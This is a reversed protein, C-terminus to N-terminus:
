RPWDPCNPRLQECSLALALVDLDRHRQGVLQIGVPRGDPTTGWPVSVAPHGSMSFPVTFGIHALAREPGIPGAADASYTAMPAVPTLLLDFDGVARAAAVSMGDMASLGVFVDEATYGHAPAAWERIYPLAQAAREEGLAQLDLYSRTRWFRDLGNLLGDDILPGIRAIRAGASELARVADELVELVEPEAAVGAGAETGFGIRLGAPSRAAVGTWPLPSYPLSMHDRRDPLSVVSMALALDSVQRPL